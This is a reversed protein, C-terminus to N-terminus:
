RRQAPEGTDLRCLDLSDVLGTEMPAPERKLQPVIRDVQTLLEDIDEAVEDLVAPLPPLPRGPALHAGTLLAHANRYEISPTGDYLEEYLDAAAIRVADDTPDLRWRGALVLAREHPETCDGELVRIAEIAEEKDIRGLTVQLHQALVTARVQVDREEHTEAIALAERNLREAEEFEGQEVQLTALQHLWVCLLYPADLLRVIAIAQRFLGEARLRRGQAAAIAAANAVQDAISTWDRLEVAIRLAYVICQTARVYDGEDRYVEGMNGVALGATHRSGIEEAVEFAKRGHVLAPRHERHRSHALALNVGAFMLSRRDGSKTAMEFAQELHLRADDPRGTELCVLGTYTHAISVGALDGSDTALARHRGATDLAEAYAGQQYLAFTIRDLTRSLGARDDLHAFEEAALRLWTVAEAYSRNYMYLDGLDRQGAAVIEPRGANRAVDMARRYAQEAEAWQGTLHWVGGLEVLVDGTEDEPLLALLRHYYDVAAENAYAAKAANGAARFWVRQKDVRQTRGFHHALVDVYQALRDPDVTEILLGVREHLSERMGFTLSQYAAEQTMAHKFQYEPEPGGGRRPTLDLEHLRELHREVERPGGAAPYADSIWSPRFRRGIVSAVKIIAKEGEGLQDLRAMLLRQLGDPLDSTALARPDRFTPDKAYLYNVLEGLYFPNGEGKEAIRNLVAPDVPAAASFRQQLRLGVLQAADASSLETLRLENFGALRLLSAPIPGADVTNRSTMLLLIRQHGIRSVLFELLAASAPDIWHCDELVLLIPVSSARHRLCELLLSRLLGDRAQPDLPAILESDPIPLNLVPALLPARQGADAAHRAISDVLRARQGAIPLSPDIELMDRLISRWV